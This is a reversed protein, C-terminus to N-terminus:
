YNEAIYPLIVGWNPLLVQAGEATVSPTVMSRDITLTEFGFISSFAFSLIMRPWLWIPLNTDMAGLVNTLAQPLRPWTSPNLLQRAFAPIFVQGQRIRTFDDGGARSRLFALSQAGDLLYTGGALGGMPEALNITIGGMSDILEAFGNVRFRVYYKVNIGFNEHITEMALSPGTGATQAEALFHATNIRNEGYFPIAVWLDRPLSLLKVTPLLPKISALMITDSRGAWSGQATRDIGLMVLQNGLPAMLYLLLPILLLIGLCGGCSGAHRKRGSEAATAGSNQNIDNSYQNM